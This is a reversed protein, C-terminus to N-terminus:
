RRSPSRSSKPNSRTGDGRIAKAMGVRDCSGLREIFEEAVPRGDPDALFTKGFVLGAIPGCLPNPGIRLYAMALRRYKLAGLRDQAAASSDLVTLSLLLECHRAALRLGVFGGM